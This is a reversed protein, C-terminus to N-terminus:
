KWDYDYDNELTPPAKSLGAEGVEDAANRTGRSAKKPLALSQRATPM